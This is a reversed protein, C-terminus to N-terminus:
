LAVGMPAPERAQDNLLRVLAAKQQGLFLGELPVRFDLGRGIPTCRLAERYLAGALIVIPRSGALEALEAAIPAGWAFREAQPKGILTEDYPAVIERPDLLGHKASLIRWPAGTAEVYARAKNFWDSRYLDAAPAPRDLKQSVCSVLYLAPPTCGAPDIEELESLMFYMQSSRGSSLRGVIMDGQRYEARFRRGKHSRADMKVRYDKEHKIQM